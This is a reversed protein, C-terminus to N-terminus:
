TQILLDSKSPGGLYAASIEPSTLLVKAEDEAVINGADIVYGRDAIELAAYANQEVLLITLGEDRLRVLARFIEAIVIPALGLSPEDLMLLRPESMLARGISLMQGEGGSLTGALQRRREALRPFLAFIREVAHQSKPKLPRGLWASRRTYAGLILNDFVTLSTFLERGEPALAVGACVMERTTMKVVPEGDFRLIGTDIQLMRILTKLLTSKGAGNPGVVAVISKEPVRLSVGKLAATVGYRVVLNEVELLPEGLSGKEPKDDREIVQPVGLYADVVLKNQRIDVPTGDAILRGRDIVLIRGALHGVLGMDHEVFLITKGRESLTRIVKALEGKEVNSLGAGPEDLILWDNDTALARAIALLRQQGASLNEAPLGAQQTLGATALAEEAAIRLRTHKRRSSPLKLLCEIMTLGASRVGGVMVNEIVSLGRFIEAAQYTRSLGRVNVLHPPQGSINQGAFVITGSSPAQDGTIINILTSKGAGNPGILAVLEGAGISFSVNELAQLGLFHKSVQRVELTM